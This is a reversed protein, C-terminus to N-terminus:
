RKYEKLSNEVVLKFFTKVDLQYFETPMTTIVNYNCPDKELDFEENLVSGSYIEIHDENREPFPLGFTQCSGLTFLEMSKTVIDSWGLEFEVLKGKYQARHDNGQQNYILNLPNIKFMERMEDHDLRRSGGYNENQTKYYM